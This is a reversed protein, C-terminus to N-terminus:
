GGYGATAMLVEQDGVVRSRHGEGATDTMQILDGPRLETWVDDSVGLKMCGTLVFMWTPSPTVHFGAEFGPEFRVLAVDSAGLPAADFVGGPVVGEIRHFEVEMEELRSKGDEGAVVKKAIRKM